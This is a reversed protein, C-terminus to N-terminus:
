YAAGTRHWTTNYNRQSYELPHALSIRGGAGVGSVRHSSVMYTTILQAYLPTRKMERQAGRVSQERCCKLEVMEWKARRDM